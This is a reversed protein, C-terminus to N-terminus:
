DKKSMKTQQGTFNKFYIKKNELDKIESVSFSLLGRSAKEAKTCQNNTVCNSNGTKL